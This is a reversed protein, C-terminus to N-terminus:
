LFDLTSSTRRELPESRRSSSTITDGTETEAEGAGAGEFSKTGGELGGGGRGGDGRALSEDDNDDGDRAPEDGGEEDAKPASLSGTLGFFTSVPVLTSRPSTTSTMLFGFCLISTLCILRSSPSNNRLVDFLGLDCLMEERSRDKGRLCREEVREDVDELETLADVSLFVLSM